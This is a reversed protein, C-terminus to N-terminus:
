LQMRRQPPKNLLRLHLVQKIIIIIIIIQLRVLNSASTGALLSNCYDLRSGVIAMAIMKAETTLSSPIHHLARIHFYSAKCIESVHKDFTYHIIYLLTTCHTYLIIICYLTYLARILFFASGPISKTTSKPTLLNKPIPM